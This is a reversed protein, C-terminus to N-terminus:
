ESDPRLSDRNHRYRAITTAPPNVRLISQTGDVLLTDEPRVWAFLGAVDSLVPIQGARAVQVGLSDPDLPASAVIASARGGIVTLAAMATVREAVVLVEGPSPLPLGCACTALLLCLSEVEIARQELMPDAARAAYTAVAYERAVQRLGPALGLKQCREAATSRLRQDDLMLLLLELGGRAAPELVSQVRREAKRLITTIASFAQEVDVGPQPSVGGGRGPHLAELTGLMLARGLATGPVVMTGTLRASRAPARGPHDRHEIAHAFTTALATGLAVETEGFAAAEGRQLVLVGAVDGRAFLPIALLSPFREEGLEPVHKYHADEQAVQASIPRMVEAASGVIGEGLALRVTGIASSPFGVNARLVLWDGADTQERVYVSVVDAHAITAAHACMKQLVKALAGSESAAEILRLIGDVRLEDREHVHMRIPREEGM